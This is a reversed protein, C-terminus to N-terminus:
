SWHMLALWMQEVQQVRAPHDRDGFTLGIDATDARQGLLAGIGEHLGFGPASRLTVPFIQEPNITNLQKPAPM